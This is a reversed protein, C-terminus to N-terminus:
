KSETVTRADNSMTVDVHELGAVLAAVIRVERASKLGDKM